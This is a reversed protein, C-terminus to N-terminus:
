IEFDIKGFLHLLEEPLLPPHPIRFHFDSRCKLHHQVQIYLLVQLRVVLQEVVGQLDGDGVESAM